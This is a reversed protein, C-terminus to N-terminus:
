RELFVAKKVGREGHLRDRCGGLLKGQEADIWVVMPVGQSVAEDRAYEIVALLRDAEQRRHRQKCSRSLSPVVIALVTALVAMVVVLEILTFAPGHKVNNNRPSM